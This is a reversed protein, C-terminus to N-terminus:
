CQTSHMPSSSPFRDGARDGTQKTIQKELIRAAQLSLQSNALALAQHPVISENREFCENPNAADFVKLFTVQMDPADQFYLSRRDIRLGKSADIEPGGMTSTDLEGAVSLVSDRVVEAQMRQENIRWLYRNDPDITANQNNPDPSSSRIAILTARSSPLLQHIAKM